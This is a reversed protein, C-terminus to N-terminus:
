SKLQGSGQKGGQSDSGTPLVATTDPRLGAGVPQGEAKCKYYGRDYDYISAFLKNM